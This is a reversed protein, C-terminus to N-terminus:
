RVQRDMPSEEELYTEQRILRRLEENTEDVQERTPANNGTRMLVLM